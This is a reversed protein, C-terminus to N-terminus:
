SKILDEVSLGHKRLFALAKEVPDAGPANKFRLYSNVANEVVNTLAKFDGGVLEMADAILEAPDNVKFSGDVIKPANYKQATGRGVTTYEHQETQYAMQYKRYGKNQKGDRGAPETKM